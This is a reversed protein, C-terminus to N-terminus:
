PTVVVSTRTSGQMDAAVVVQSDDLSRFEVHARNDGQPQITTKGAAVAAIIRLLDRANLPAELVEDLFSPAALLAALDDQIDLVTQEATEGNTLVYAWIDSAAM